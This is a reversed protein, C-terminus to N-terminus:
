GVQLPLTLRTVSQAPAPKLNWVTLASIAAGVLLTGLSLLLTRQWIGTAPAAAVHEVVPAAIADEIEIRVAGADPIRQRKDKRMCRRLLTRIAPPTDAPLCTWDPEARVLAALIDTVDEGQFAQKGSLMEYLVAGFAWIDTRKDVAKGKAQEPSM